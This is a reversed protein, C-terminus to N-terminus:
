DNSNSSSYRSVLEHYARRLQEHDLRLSDFTSNHFNFTLHTLEQNKQLFLALSRQFSYVDNELNMLLATDMIIMPVETVTSVREESLNYLLYPFGTGCRFGIIDQYGLTADTEIGLREILSLSTHQDFHLFHQRSDHINIGAIEELRNKEEKLLPGNAHAAYSPHLGITYGREIALQITSPVYPEKIQYFRDYRTIGGSLFYIHKNKLNQHLLLWEFTDFPDKQKGGKVARFNKLLRQQDAWNRGARWMAASSRGLRYWSSYKRFVDIDHSMGLTTKSRPPALGLAHFFCYVLQDVLAQHHLNQRPLFQLDSRMMEWEDWDASDCHYEEFRTLHFFLMEILDFGFARDVLFRRQEKREKEVSYLTFDDHQYANACLTKCDPIEKAFVLQQSPIHYAKEIKGKSAGYYILPADNRTEEEVKELIWDEPCLPHQGLYALVYDIRSSFEQPPYYFLLQKTM